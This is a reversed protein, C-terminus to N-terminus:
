PCGEVGTLGDLFGDADLLLEGVTSLVSAPTAPHDDVLVYVVVGAPALAAARLCAPSLHEPVVVRAEEVSQDDCLGGAEGASQGVNQIDPGWPAVHADDGDSLADICHSSVVVEELLQHKKCLALDPDLGLPRLSVRKVAAFGAVRRGAPCGISVSPDMRWVTVVAARAELDVGVLGLHNPPNEGLEDCASREALNGM